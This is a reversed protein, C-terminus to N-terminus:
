AFGDMSHFIVPRCVGDEIANRYNYEYDTRSEGNDDYFVFPIRNIDSRFPTGTLLLKRLVGQFCYKMGEGWSKKEGAHHIEDAILMVNHVTCIRQVMSTLSDIQQYTMVIGNFGSINKHGVMPLLNLKLGHASEAWQIRLNDSPVVVILFDVEGSNALLVYSALGFFTKGAGPTASILSCEREKVIKFANDQWERFKM